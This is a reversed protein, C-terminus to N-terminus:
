AHEVVLEAWRTAISVVQDFAFKCDNPFDMGMRKGMSYVHAQANSETNTFISANTEVPKEKVVKVPKEKKAVDAAPKKLQDIQKLLNKVQKSVSAISAIGEVVETELNMWSAALGNIVSKKVVGELSNLVGERYERDCVHTLSKQEFESFGTIKEIVQWMRMESTDIGMRHLIEVFPNDFPSGGNSTDSLLPLQNKQRLFQKVQQYFRVKYAEKIDRGVNCAFLLLLEEAESVTIIEGKIETAGMIQSHDVRRHGSIIRLTGDALRNALIPVIVGHLEIQQRLDLDDKESTTFIDSNLPHPQLDAIKIMEINM